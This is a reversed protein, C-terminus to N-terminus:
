ALIKLRVVATIRARLLLTHFQVLRQVQLPSLMMSIQALEPILVRLM